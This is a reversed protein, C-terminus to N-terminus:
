QSENVKLCNDCTTTVLREVTKSREINHKPPSGGHDNREVHHVCSVEVILIALQINRSSQLLQQYSLHPHHTVIHCCHHHCLCGVGLATDPTCISWCQCLQCLQQYIFQSLKRQTCVRAKSRETTLQHKHTRYESENM